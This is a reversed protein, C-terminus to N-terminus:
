AITSYASMRASTETAATAIRFVSPPETEDIKSL